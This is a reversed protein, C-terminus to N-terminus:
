KDDIRKKPFPFIMPVRKKYDRYKNGFDHLLRKEETIKLYFIIILFFSLCFILSALSNVILTIAFYISNIGLVMPNRTFRYPGTIVLKQSRPSIEINFVDTPGGKGTKLLNFNSWITFTLGFVLLIMAIILRFITSNLIPVKFFSYEIQSIYYIQFPIIIVFIMFGVIYGVIHKEKERKRMKHRQM